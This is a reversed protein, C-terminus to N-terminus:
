AVKELPLEVGLRALMRQFDALSYREDETVLARIRGSGPTGEGLGAVIAEAPDLFRCDPSATEFFGKLWPLHTSSLTLVELGPVRRHLEKVFADVQAQTGEPDFLFAGSEVLEVMASADILNVTEPASTQKAVFDRLEDSEILSRVGMIGVKGHPALALAEALPPFVGFLPLTTLPRVRELVTISPANSAMVIASPAFGELFRLTRAMVEALEDPEKSGYPFSARDAFYIVDQRPLRRQIEAVIAYSGIGADFVAIPRNLASEPM